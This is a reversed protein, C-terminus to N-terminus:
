CLDKTWKTFVSYKLGYGAGQNVKGGTVRAFAKNVDRRLPPWTLPFM